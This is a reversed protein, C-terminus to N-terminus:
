WAIQTCFLAFSEYSNKCLTINKEKLSEEIKTLYALAKDFRLNEGVEKLEKIIQTMKAFDKKSAAEDFEKKDKLAQKKFEELLEFIASHEIGLEKAATYADYQKDTTDETPMKKIKFAPFIKKAQPSKKDLPPLKIDFEKPTSIQVISEKDEKEIDKLEAEMDFSYDKAKILNDKNNFFSNILEVVYMVSSHNIEDTLVIETARIGCEIKKGNKLCILVKKDAIGSHLIYDIWSFNKFKYIYERKKVLMDAFDDFDAKFEDIDEYNLFSLVSPSMGLFNADKDYLILYTGKM